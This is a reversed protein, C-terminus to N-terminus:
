FDGNILEALYNSLSSLPLLFHSFAIDPVPLNPSLSCPTLSYLTYKHRGKGVGVMKKRNPAGWPNQVGMWGLVAISRFGEQIEKGWGAGGQLAKLAWSEMGSGNVM